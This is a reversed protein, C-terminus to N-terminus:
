SASKHRDILSWSLVAATLLMCIIGDIRVASVANLRQALFGIQMGGVAFLGNFVLSYVAMVRGRLADPVEEQVLTQSSMGFVIMAFGSATLIVLAFAFQHVQSLLILTICFLFAGGYIQLRRPLRAGFAALWLGGVAAGLGNLSVIESFGAEGVKYITAFVPFLTSLPWAFLSSAGVLLITRFVRFDSWIYRFGDWVSLRRPTPVFEPLKMLLLSIIVAVFSLGNLAFCAAVSAKVLVAGALMPGLVRALNFRLSNLALANGLAKRDDVMETVFAQQAPMNFANVIGNLGAILVVHWAELPIPSLRKTALFALAFALLMQITQTWVLITRRSLRDAVQGGWIAFMVFPIASSASVYGLWRASHTLDWVVWNQAVTQMWTGAVSILQGVFFLRFNRFTLAYFLKQQQAVPISSMSEDIEDQTMESTHRAKSNSQPKAGEM